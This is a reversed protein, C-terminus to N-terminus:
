CGGSRPSPRASSNRTRSRATYKRRTSFTVGSEVAARIVSIMAQKEGAPGYGSSMGMCGLGIASVKLNSNGLTRKNM